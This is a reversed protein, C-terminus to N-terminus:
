GGLAYIEERAGECVPLDNDVGALAVFDLKDEVAHIHGAGGGSGDISQRRILHEKSQRIPSLVVKGIAPLIHGYIFVVNVRNKKGLGVQSEVAGAAEGDLRRGPVPHHGLILQHDGAAAIGDSGGVVAQGSVVADGNGVAAKGNGRTLVAEM